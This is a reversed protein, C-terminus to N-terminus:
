AFGGDERVTSARTLSSPWDARQHKRSSDAAHRRGDIDGLAEVGGRVEEIAV